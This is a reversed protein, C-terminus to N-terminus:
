EDECSELRTKFEEIAAEILVPDAYPNAEENDEEADKKPDTKLAAEQQMQAHKTELEKARKEWRGEYYKVRQVERELYKEMDSKENSKPKVMVKPLRFIHLFGIRTGVALAETRESAQHRKGEQTPKFEMRTVSDQSVAQTLIPEHSRDLLDWVQVNGDATGVFVVSPRTPSWCGCTVKSSVFPSCVIPIPCGAKWIKFSWDGATIYYQTLTPHRQVSLAPGHHGVRRGDPLFGACMKVPQIRVSEDGGYSTSSNSQEGPAWNINVFEGEETVAAAMYPDITKDELQIRLGIVEGSGDPKTLPIKILPIWPIESENSKGQVLKRYKDKRMYEKNLDWVFMYGDGSITVFQRVGEFVFPNQETGGWTKKMKNSESGPQGSPVLKGDFNCELGGTIWALDHVARKHGTEIKSLEKWSNKPTTVGDGEEGEREQAKEKERERGGKKGKKSAQTQKSLDWLVVQGNIAGGVLISDNTPNFKVVNIEQPAELVWRPHIPDAFDWIIVLSTFVKRNLMIRDTYGTVPPFAEGVAVCVVRSSGPRWDISTVTKNKTFKHHQFNGADSFVADDKSGLFTDDDMLQSFDDRFLQLVNNCTCSHEIRPLVSKLFKTIQPEKEADVTSNRADTVQTQVQIATSVQRFWPTQVKADATECVAQVSIEHECGIGKDQGLREYSPDKFPRYEHTHEMADTTSLKVEHHREVFVQRPRSYHIKILPRTLKIKEEIIERDAGYPRFNRLTTM